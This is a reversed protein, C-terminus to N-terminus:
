DTASGNSNVGARAARLRQIRADLRDVDM